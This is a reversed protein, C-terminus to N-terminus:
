EVNPIETVIVTLAKKAFFSFPFYLSPLTALGLDQNFVDASIWYLPYHTFLYRISKWCAKESNFLHNMKCMMDRNIIQTKCSIM